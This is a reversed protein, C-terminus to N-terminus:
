HGWVDVVWMLWRSVFTVCRVRVQLSLCSVAAHVRRHATFLSVVLPPPPPAGGEKHTEVRKM